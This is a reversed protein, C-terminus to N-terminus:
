YKDFHDAYLGFFGLHRIQYVKNGLSYNVSFLFFLSFCPLLDQFLCTFNSKPSKKSGRGWVHWTLCRKIGGYVVLFWMTLLAYENAYLRLKFHAIFTDNRLWRSSNNKHLTKKKMCAFSSKSRSCRLFSRRMSLPSLEHISGESLSLNVASSSLLSLTTEIFHNHWLTDKIQVKMKVSNYREEHAEESHIAFSQTSMFHLKPFMGFLNQLM